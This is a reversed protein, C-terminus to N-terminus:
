RGNAPPPLWGQQGGPQRTMPAEVPRVWIFSDCILRSQLRPIRRATMVSPNAPSATVRLATGPTAVAGPPPNMLVATARPVYMSWPVRGTLCPNSTTTVCIVLGTPPEEPQCECGPPAIPTTPHAPVPHCLAIVM